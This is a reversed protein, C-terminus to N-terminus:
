LGGFGAIAHYDLNFLWYLSRVSDLNRLTRFQHAVHDGRLRALRALIGLHRQRKVANLHLAALGHRDM